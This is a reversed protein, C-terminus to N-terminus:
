CRGYALSGAIAHVEADVGACDGHHITLEDAGIMTGLLINQLTIRQATTMGKRTGTFGVRKM